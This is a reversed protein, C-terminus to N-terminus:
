KLDNEIKVVREALEDVRLRLAKMQALLNGLPNSPGSPPVIDSANRGLNEAATEINSRTIPRKMHYEFHRIADEWNQFTQDHEEALRTLRYMEVATLRNVGSMFM